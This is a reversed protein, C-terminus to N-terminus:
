PAPEGDRPTVVLLGILVAYFGAVLLAPYIPGLVTLVLFTGTSLPVAIAWWQRQALLWAVPLLLFLAYHDWLLPSLLQSAVVTALYGSAPSRRRVVVIWLLGATIMAIWQVAAALEPAAGARFALAGATYNNPTAIPDSVRRIVVAYDSWATLGTVPLAIVAVAIIVVIGIAMARWQRTLLMWGFLLAPQLKILTGVAATAGLGPPSATWRWGLAFVLLLIPGVQGLKLAYVLPWDIGALLLVIWRVPTPVPMVAIALVVAAISTLTWVWIGVDAPLLAFPVVALAFPPPYLYIAFPGAIDVATDYLPRSELLRRAAGVYAQYDYGLTERAFALVMGVGGIFWISAVVPLVTRWRRGTM